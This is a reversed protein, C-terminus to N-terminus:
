RSSSRRLTARSPKTHQGPLRYETRHTYAALRDPHSLKAAADLNVGPVPADGLVFLRWPPVRHHAMRLVVLPNRQARALLALGQHV